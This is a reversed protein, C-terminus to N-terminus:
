FKTATGQIKLAEFIISHDETKKSLAVVQDVVESVFEERIEPPLHETFSLLPIVFKMFADKSPFTTKIWESSLKVESFGANILLTYYEEESFYVRQPIYDPFYEKWKQSYILNESLMCLSMPYRGYLLLLAKGGPVLAKYISELAKQQPIVWHLVSFSTVIDFQEEFPLTLANAQIFSLNSIPKDKCSNLAFEIMNTSVDVGVVSSQTFNEAIFATIKGDGCGVDLVKETGNFQLTKLIENAANWQLHSNKNYTGADTIGAGYFLSSICTLCTLITHFRM